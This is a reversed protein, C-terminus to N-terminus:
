ESTSLFWFFIKETHGPRRSLVNLYFALQTAKTKLILFHSERQVSNDITYMTFKNGYM